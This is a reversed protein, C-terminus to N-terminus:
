HRKKAVAFILYNHTVPGKGHDLGIGNFIAMGSCDDIVDDFCAKANHGHFQNM